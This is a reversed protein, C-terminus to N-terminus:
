VNPTELLRLVRAAARQLARDTKLRAAIMEVSKAVAAVGLGGAQEGLEELTLGCRVRGRYIALRGMGRSTIHYWGGAYHHRLQRAM